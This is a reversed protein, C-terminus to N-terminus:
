GGRDLETLTEGGRGGDGSVTDDAGAAGVPGGSAGSVTGSGAIAAQVGGTTGSVADLM